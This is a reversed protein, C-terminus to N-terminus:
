TVRFHDGAGLVGDLLEDCTGAPVHQPLRQLIMEVGAGGGFWPQRLHGTRVLNRPAAGLGPMGPQQGGGEAPNLDGPDGVPRGSHGIQVRAVGPERQRGAPVRERQLALHHVLADGAGQALGM